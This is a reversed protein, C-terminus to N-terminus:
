TLKRIENREALPLANYLQQVSQGLCPHIYNPVIELIPALVFARLHARPHPLILHDPAKAQAEANTLAAQAKWKSLDPAIDDGCFILDLDCTRASWRTIRERGFHAEIEHLWALLDDANLSTEFQFAANIFDPGSDAPFAPTQYLSSYVPSFSEFERFISLVHDTLPTDDLSINAGLAIIATKKSM